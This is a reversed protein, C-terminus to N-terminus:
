VGGPADAADARGTSCLLCRWWDTVCESRFVITDQPNVGSMPSSDSCSIAFTHCSPSIVVCVVVPTPTCVPLFPDGPTNGRPAAGAEILKQLPPPWNTVDETTVCAQAHIMCCDPEPGAVFPM